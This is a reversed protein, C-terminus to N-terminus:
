GLRYIDLVGRTAHDNANGEAAVVRGDAVVPSQWHAEGLPLEALKHGSAPLYVAIGGSGEVYLLGGALVPSTGALGNSWVEHLRGGRLRWAATGSGTAVFLWSSRWVAPTSYIQAQGPAQVSQLEGGTAASTGPLRALAVLALLGDKGGQVLYGGASCPPRPRASTATAPTSSPRTPRADLARAPADASPSLLLVSDGWDDSGNFLGNGTAVLLDGSGPVVVAGARAWIGADSQGCSSPLILTHRASCLANWVGVITGNAAHLTVVEGQYPPIDGFYGGTTAIVLGRSYNLASALKERSPDRTVSRTWLVASSAVSLKRIRGDPAAAYIALRDPDALPSATTIQATGAYSRYDPPTFRWLLKGTAADIAETRGYSTTVVIADVLRGEVVVDHLYVPSSDVTGDLDVQQRELRAVNAATIETEAPGVDSRAADYGFQPWDCCASTSASAASGGGLLLAAVFAALWARAPREDSRSGRRSPKSLQRRTAVIAMVGLAASLHALIRPSAVRRKRAM